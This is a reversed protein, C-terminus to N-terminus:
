TDDIVEVDDFYKILTADNVSVVKNGMSKKFDAGMYDALAKLNPLQDRTVGYRYLEELLGKHIICSWTQPSRKIYPLLNNKVLKILRDSIADPQKPYTLIDGDKTAAEQIQLIASIRQLM